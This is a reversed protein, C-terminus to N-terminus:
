VSFLLSLSLHSTDVLLTPRTSFCTYVVRDRIGMGNEMVNDTDLLQGVRRGDDLGWMRMLNTVLRIDKEDGNARPYEVIEEAYRGTVIDVEEEEQKM